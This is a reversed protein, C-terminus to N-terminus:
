TPFLVSILMNCKPEYLRPTTHSITILKTLKVYQNHPLTGQRARFSVCADNNSCNNQQVCKRKTLYVVACVSNEDCLPWHM